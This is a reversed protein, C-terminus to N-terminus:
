PRQEKLVSEREKTLPVVECKRGGRQAIRDFKVDTKAYDTEERKPPSM